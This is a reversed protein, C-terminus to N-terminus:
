PRTAAGTLGFAGWAFPHPFHRMTATQAQRLAQATPHTKLNEYFERMLVYTARDDVQWLTTIVEPTGAYLFARQLGLLEDGRLLGGLGTQCASLVVLRANLKLRFIERVELRGDDSGDATLLLASSLPDQEKLEGHTAFHILGVGGSLAKIAKETAREGVLVTANALSEGITKYL